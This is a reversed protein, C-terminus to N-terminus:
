NTFMFYMEDFHLPHMTFHRPQDMGPKWTVQLTPVEHVFNVELNPCLSSVKALALVAVAPSTAGDVVQFFAVEAVQM